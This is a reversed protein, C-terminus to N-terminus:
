TTQGPKFKVVYEKVKKIFDKKSKAPSATKKAIKPMVKSKEKKIAEDHKKMGEMTGKQSKEVKTKVRAESAKNAASVVKKGEAAAIKPVIKGAEVYSKRLNKITQQM